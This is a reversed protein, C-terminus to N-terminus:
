IKVRCTIIGDPARIEQFHFYYLLGSVYIDKAFSIVPVPM